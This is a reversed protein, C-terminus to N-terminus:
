ALFRMALDGPDKRVWGSVDVGDPVHLANGLSRTTDCELDDVEVKRAFEDEFSRACHCM